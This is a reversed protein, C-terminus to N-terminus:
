LESIKPFILKMGSADVKQYTLYGLILILGSIIFLFLVSKYYFFQFEGIMGAAANNSNLLTQLKKELDKINEKETEIDENISKLADTQTQINQSIKSKLMKMNTIVRRTGASNPNPTPNFEPKTYCEPDFIEKKKEVLWNTYSSISKTLEANFDDTYNKVKESYYIPPFPAM